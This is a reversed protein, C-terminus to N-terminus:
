KFNAPFKTGVTKALFEDRKDPNDKCYKLFSQNNSKFEVWESTAANKLGFIYYKYVEGGINSADRYSDYTVSSSTFVFQRRTGDKAEPIPLSERAHVNFVEAGAQYKARTDMTIILMVAELAPIPVMRSIGEITAKPEISMTKMYSSGARARQQTGVTVQVNLALPKAAPPTQAFVSSVFLLWVLIVRM